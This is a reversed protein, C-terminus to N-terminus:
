SKMWIDRRTQVVNRIDLAAQQAYYAYRESKKLRQGQPLTGGLIGFNVHMPEYRGACSRTAYDVLSGFATTSPLVLEPLHHLAAYCNLAALLGSAIAECYGETGTIQGALWLHDSGRLALTSDLVQPANVFTNRHMVGYRCFQAQELGPILSFVRKQESFTLNTQFGVLNYASGSLNEKRLQVVAFPRCGTRPDTLGVPKMIGFCLSKYGKRAVEEVPQCGQFLDTTEFDKLVVRRAEILAHYFLDYEERTLPANLYDSSEAEDEYRSQAFIKEMNLSSTEVIPAAADYFALMDKGIRQQLAHVLQGHALPGPALICPGDPINDIRKRVFTINPHAYLTQTVRRAFEVRDVALAGGAPVAVSQAIRLLHSNMQMLEDKLMGAAKHPATSKLSNSCVLEAADTGHHAPSSTEPRMEYITVACGRDALQLAAESGALGAGVVIVKRVTVGNSVMSLLLNIIYRDYM